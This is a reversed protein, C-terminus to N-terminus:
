AVLCASWGCDKCIICGAQHILNTSECVPCKETPGEFNKPTASIIKGNKLIEVYWKPPDIGFKKMISITHNKILKVTEEIRKKSIEGPLYIVQVSKSKERYITIGKCGLEHALLYAKEVDEEEVWEPMNITKSISTTIWLQALAQARVHDWWPIDLATVFVKRVELPIEELGQISGGNESVKKLIEDNHLGIEKLKQEFEVDIYFFNGAVVRKEYVLSFQPEIGASVDLLMSISGTPAISTVEVNRIGNKLIENKLKEWDLSWLEKHYFGEIPMEGKLYSTKEYLPFVGREKAREISAFMAYYTLWECVKRIFEFGEESNYPIELAFLTDALGMFGLGIRRVNKSAKEIQEIPYKNVDIVNDLFEYAIRITEKFEDWDFYKKGNKRKVFAYLNISGLNCSEFPYLPQEGCPNTARILGRSEKQVNRLNMNDLFLVGPDATKWAVKAIEEFLKKPDVTAVVEKTRPNILEYKENKKLAEWFKEDLMVSINFNEFQGEKEKAHIFKFIDPHWSELIGMNAGRRKNHLLIGNAVFKGSPSVELHFTEKIKKQISSIKVFYYKGELIEKFEKKLEEFEESLIKLRFLTLNRKGLMYKHLKRYFRSARKPNEMKLKKYVKKLKSQSYPIIWNFEFKKNKLIKENKEESIFGIKEIFKRLSFSDVIRLHYLDKKGRHDKIKKAEMKGIKSVIGLSFLLQQVQHILTPSTSVLYPYGYSSVSGDGEFLGRLFARIVKEKAQLILDPVFARTSTEKKLGLREFYRELDRSFWVVDEYTEKKRIEGVKLGFTKRIKKVFYKKLKENNFTLILRGRNFCGDAMYYGLIEAFDENLKSPIKLRNSNFHQARIKPLKIEKGGVGNLSIVIWDNEKLEIARKFTIECNQNLTAVLENYTVEVWNGIETEIRFVESKGNLSGLFANEFREGSFVSFPLIFEDKLTPFNIQIPKILGLDTRLYTDTAICGGQKVVDTVVDIIRMFSVPGSAVGATSAVIDGEPRLKSFNIGIGGGSKFILAAYKAADMISEMNDEIPLVFCASLQGLRAGANFLTPSNPLFKKSIMLNFYEKFKEFYKEFKGQLLLNWFESWSVKMKGQANLEDYLKKMRELHYKNWYVEYGDVKKGLGVKRDWKEWDFDEQPKREQKGEKDFIEEDYLIDPIVILMAVREFMQKPGEILNGKEDKLLYRNVMLRLANVSFKKAVQEEYFKGLLAIKEKRIQEKYKRYTIYAKATKYHGNEVLVKEVLDQVQEVTPIEGPKLTKELLEVVQDALKYALGKDKGGVSQAAKWIAEAIKTKDFSVVRGDRKIIKEIM